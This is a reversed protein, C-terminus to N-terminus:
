CGSAGCRISCRCAVASVTVAGACDLVTRRAGYLGDVNRSMGALVVDVRKGAGSLPHDASIWDELAVYSFMETQLQQDDGRM